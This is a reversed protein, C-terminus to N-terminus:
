LPLGAELFEIAKILHDLEPPGDGIAGLAAGTLAGAFVRVEFDGPERGVRPAIADALIAINRGLQDFFTARLEPETFLLQQRARETALQDPTLTALVSRFALRCATLPPLHAPQEAIAALMPADLDDVLVVQEKSPFYRFFTSPSVEAAAAIQDVTTQAYGQEAFLRLAQERLIRRTKIKKRERLSAQTSVDGTNSM